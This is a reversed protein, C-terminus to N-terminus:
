LIYSVKQKVHIEANVQNEKYTEAANGVEEEM